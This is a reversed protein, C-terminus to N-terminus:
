RPSSLALRSSNIRRNGDNASSFLASHYGFIQNSNSSPIIQSDLTTCLDLALELDRDARRFPLRTTKSAWQLVQLSESFLTAHLYGDLTRLLTRSPRFNTQQPRFSLNDVSDGQGRRWLKLGKFAQLSDLQSIILCRASYIDGSSPSIDNLV